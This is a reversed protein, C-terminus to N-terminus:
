RDTQRDTPRDIGVETEQYKVLVVVTVITSFCSNIDREMTRFFM